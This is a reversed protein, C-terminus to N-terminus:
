RCDKAAIDIASQAIAKSGINFFAARGVLEPKGLHEEIWHYYRRRAYDDFMLTARRGVHFAKKAVALACAVRYRGDVLIFDPFPERPFPAEIYRESKISKRFVPTGRIGTLGMDPNILELQDGEIRSRVAEAYHRDSEVSVAPSGARDALLTSGGSGYELYSSAKAIETKFAEVGEPEFWPSEGPPRVGNIRRDNLFRLLERTRRLKGEYRRFM